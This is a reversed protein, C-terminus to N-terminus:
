NVFAEYKSYESFVNVIKTQNKTLLSTLPSINCSNLRESLLDSEKSEFTLVSERESKEVKAVLNNTNQPKNHL